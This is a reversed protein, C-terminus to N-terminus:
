AVERLGAVTRILRLSKLKAPLEILRTSSDINEGM